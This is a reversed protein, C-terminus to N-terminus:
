NNENREGFRKIMSHVFRVVAITDFGLSNTDTHDVLMPALDDLERDNICRLLLQRLTAILRRKESKSIVPNRIADLMCRMRIAIDLYNDRGSFIYDVGDITLTNRVDSMWVINSMKIGKVIM